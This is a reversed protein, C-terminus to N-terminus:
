FMLNPLWTVLGPFAIILGVVAFMCLIFPVVGIFVDNISGGGRIGQVVYLNLGMPPTILAVEMMLVLFIGFWVPDIGLYVILPFIVPVTAVMMALAEMFLGLVFYFLILVALTQAATLGLDAVFETMARPVGMFGVVFNMFLAATLIFMIMATLRITSLFVEHLFDFSLRGNAAALVLAMGVGVAAAETPTGWGFYITMMVMLFIALPPLLYRLRALRVGLPDVADAGGILRPRTAAMLM